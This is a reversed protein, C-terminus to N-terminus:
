TSDVHNMTANFKCWSAAGPSQKEFIAFGKRARFALQWVVIWKKQFGSRKVKLTLFVLLIAFNSPKSVLRQSSIFPVHCGFSARFTEHSQSVPGKDSEREPARKEFTGFVKRTRFAMQLVGVRKSQLGPRKM